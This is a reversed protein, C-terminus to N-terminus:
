GNVVRKAPLASTDTLTYIDKVLERPSLGGKMHLKNIRGALRARDERTLEKATVVMIPM